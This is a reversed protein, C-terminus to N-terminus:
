TIYLLPGMIVYNSYLTVLWGGMCRINIHDVLIIFFLTKEHHSSYLAFLYLSMSGGSEM